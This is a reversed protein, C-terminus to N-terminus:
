LRRARSEWVGSAGTWAAGDPILLGFKNLLLTAAQDTPPLLPAEGRDCVPAWGGRGDLIELQWRGMTRTLRVTVFEAPDLALAATDTM